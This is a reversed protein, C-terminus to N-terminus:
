GSVEKLFRLFDPMETAKWQWWNLRSLFDLRTEVTFPKGQLWEAAGDECEFPVGAVVADVAVNSHRCVVLSAGRIVDEIESTGDTECHLRPGENPRKPRYVIRRGPFRHRLEDLKRQEWGDTKLFRHSKPGCGALVLHGDPHADQRLQIGHTWWRHPDPKTRDLWAQPHQHDISVRMYGGRRARGFYGLDWCLVHGARKVHRDRAAARDPAGVGYLALWLSQGRYQNTLVTPIGSGTATRYLAELIEIGGPAETGDELVELDFAM